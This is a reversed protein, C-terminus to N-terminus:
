IGASVAAPFHRARVADLDLDVLRLAGQAELRARMDPSDGVVEDFFARLGAEGETDLLYRFMMHLNMGVDRKAFPGRMDKRYSGKAFRYDFSKRWSEWSLAHVHALDIRPEEILGPNQTGNQFINHIRIDMAMRGTRVFLKGALHSMFGGRLYEGFTPYLAAVTEERAPGSPLFAKFGQGDGGALAEMPRLRACVTQKPMSGLVGDIPQHSVLFEDVDMHILWDVERKREYAHTANFCQRVQHKDPRGGECRRWHAADCLTPRIKSHAKLHPWAEPNEADLYIYLRHAGRELHYAAFNLIDRAPALITSSIGWTTM